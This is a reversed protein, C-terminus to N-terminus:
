YLGCSVPGSAISVSRVYSCTEFQSSPTPPFIHIRLVGCFCIAIDATICQGKRVVFAETCEPAKKGGILCPLCLSSVLIIKRSTIETKNGLCKTVHNALTFM